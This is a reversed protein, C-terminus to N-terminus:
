RALLAILGDALGGRWCLADHGGHYERYRLDYGKADLVDRLHRHLPLPIWEQLGVELFIRLPQRPATAFERILRGSDAAFEERAPWWLSASQALVCGFRAPARLGAFLATLGGLSAGAILTDAPDASIGWRGTAWPLLEGTLFALFAESCALERWRTATDGADPMLAILPPIRGAAILNDLTAPAALRGTWQAGDLLVAVPLAHAGPVHGAPTYVWVRRAAGLQEGELWHPSVEGAPVGPRSEWWPQPPAGPLEAVSLEPLGDPGPFRAPNLPDPVAHAARGRWRRAPGTAAAPPRARAPQDDPALHYSGRWDARLRYSRHWVDTGPLRELVSRDWVSPDTLKNALLVVERTGGRDRWLFTVVRHGPEGELPEVLPTRREAAEAWFVALATPSPDAALATVRPSAVVEPPPSKPARLPGIVDTV